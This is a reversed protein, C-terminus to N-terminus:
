GILLIILLLFVNNRYIRATEEGEPATWNDFELTRLYM